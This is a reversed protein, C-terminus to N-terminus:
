VEKPAKKRLKNWVGWGIAAAAVFIFYLITMTQMSLGAAITIIAPILAYIFWAIWALM